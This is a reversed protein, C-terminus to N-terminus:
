HTSRRPSYPENWIEPLSCIFTNEKKKELSDDAKLSVPLLLLFHHINKKIYYAAGQKTDGGEDQKEKVWCSGMPTIKLICRDLLGGFRHLGQGSGVMNVCLKRSICGTERVDLQHKEPGDQRRELGKCIRARLLCSFEVPPFFMSPEGLQNKKTDIQWASYSRGDSDFCFM